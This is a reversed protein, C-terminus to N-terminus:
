NLNINSTLIQNKIPKNTGSAVDLLECLEWFEHEHLAMYTGNPKIYILLKRRNQSGQNKTIWYKCDISKVYEAFRDFEEQTLQALTNGFELFLKNNCPCRFIQGNPTSNILKM